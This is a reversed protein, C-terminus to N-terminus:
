CVAQDYLNCCDQSGRACSLNHRLIRTKNCRACSTCDGRICPSSEGIDPILTHGSSFLQQLHVEEFHPPPLQAAESDGLAFQGQLTQILGAVLTM